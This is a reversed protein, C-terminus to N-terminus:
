KVCRDFYFLGISEAFCSKRWTFNPGHSMPRESLYSARAEMKPIHVRHGKALEKDEDLSNLPPFLAGGYTKHPDLIACQFPEFSRGLEIVANGAWPLHGFSSILQARHVINSM